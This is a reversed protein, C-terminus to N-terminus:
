GTIYHELQARDNELERMRSSVVDGISVIGVLEGDNLVPLHRIRRETMLTAVDNITDEPRCGLVERTMISDVSAEVVSVGRHHLQRVVDRESVIGIVADGDVVVLAGVDHEALRDLLEAVRGDPAIAHVQEGHATHQAKHRLIDSIQV